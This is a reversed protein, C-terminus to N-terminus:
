VLSHRTIILVKISELPVDAADDDEDSLYHMQQKIVPPGLVSM